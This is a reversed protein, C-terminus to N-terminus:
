GDLPGIEPANQYVDVVVGFNCLVPSLHNGGQQGLEEPNGSGLCKWLGSSPTLIWTSIFDLNPAMTRAITNPIQEVAAVLVDAGWCATARGGLGLVVIGRGIRTTTHTSDRNRTRRQDDLYPQTRRPSNLNDHDELSGAGDKHTLTSVRTM